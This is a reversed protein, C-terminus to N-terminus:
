PFLLILFSHSIIIHCQQVFGVGVLNKIWLSLKSQELNKEPRTM